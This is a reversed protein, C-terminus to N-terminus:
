MFSCQEERKPPVIYGQNQAKVLWYESLDDSKTCGSGSAYFTAIWIQARCYGMEALKLMIKFAKDYDFNAYNCWAVNFLAIEDEETCNEELIQLAKGKDWETGVGMMHCLGVAVKDNSAMAARGLNRAMARSEDGGNYKVLNHAYFVMARCDNCETARKFWKRAAAYDIGLGWGSETLAEGIRIMAKTNGCAASTKLYKLALEIKDEKRFRCAFELLVNRLDEVIEKFGWCTRAILAISKEDANVVIMRWIEFPVVSFLANKFCNKLLNRAEEKRSPLHKSVNQGM